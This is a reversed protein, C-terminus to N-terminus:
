CTLKPRFRASCHHGQAAAPAYCTKCFCPSLAPSAPCFLQLGHNQGTQLAFAQAAFFGIQQSSKQNKKDLFLVFGVRPSQAPRHNNIVVSAIKFVFFSTRHSASIFEARRGLNSRM